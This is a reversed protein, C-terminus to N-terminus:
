YRSPPPTLTLSPALPTRDDASESNATDHMMYTEYTICAHPIQIHEPLWGVCM